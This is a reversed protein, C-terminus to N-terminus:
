AGTVPLLPLCLRWLCWWGEREECVARGVPFGPTGGDNLSSKQNWDTKLMIWEKWNLEDALNM